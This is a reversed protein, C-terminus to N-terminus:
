IEHFRKMWWAQSEFKSVIHDFHKDDMVSGCSPTRLSNISEPINYACEFEEKELNVIVDIAPPLRHIQQSTLDSVSVPTTLFHITKSGYSYMDFGREKMKAILEDKKLAM